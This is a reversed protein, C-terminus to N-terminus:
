RGKDMLFDTETFLDLFARFVCRKGYFSLHKYQTKKIKTSITIEIM